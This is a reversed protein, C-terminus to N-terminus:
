KDKRELSERFRALDYFMHIDEPELAFLEPDPCDLLGCGMAMYFGVTAPVPTASVYLGDVPLASAKEVMLRFLKRGIGRGRYDRSVWMPGFNFMNGSPGYTRSTDLGAIGVLSDGDYAGVLIVTDNRLAAAYEGAIEGWTDRDFGKHVFDRDEQVLVGKEIVCWSPSYDSRDIGSLGALDSEELERYHIM